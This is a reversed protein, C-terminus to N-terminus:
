AVDCSFHVKLWQDRDVLEAPQHAPVATSSPGSGRNRTWGWDRDCERIKYTTWMFKCVMNRYSYKTHERTHEVFNYAYLVYRSM